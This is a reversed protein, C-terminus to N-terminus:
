RCLVNQFRTSATECVDPDIIDEMLEKERQGRSLWSLSRERVDGSLPSAIEIDEEPEKDDDEYDEDSASKIAVSDRLEDVEGLKRSSVPGNVECMQQVADRWSANGVSVSLLTQRSENETITESVRGQQDDHRREMEDLLDDM